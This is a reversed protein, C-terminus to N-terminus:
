AIPACLRSNYYGGQGLKGLALVVSPDDSSSDKMCKVFTEVARLARARKTEVDLDLTPPVYKSAAESNSRTVPSTISRPPSDMSPMEEHTATDRSFDSPAQKMCEALEEDSETMLHGGLTTQKERLRKALIPTRPSIHVAGNSSLLQYLARLTPLLDIPSVMEGTQPHKVKVSEGSLLDFFGETASVGQIVGKGQVNDGDEVFLAAQGLQKGYWCNRGELLTVYLDSLLPGALPYDPEECLLHTIFVMECCANSFYVAMSTACNQTASSIIGAGIAYVNKLGGMVEHMIVDCHDWVVFSPNRLFDALLKRLNDAGCLRSTAYKGQWIESAINPGGLYYLKDGSIGTAERLVGTPTIIHPYPEVMCEVGKALSIIVPWQNVDPEKQRWIQGIREFVGRAETSPLSNIVIDADWVAEELDTVVHLPCLPIKIMNVCFGDRLIEDAYLIRDGVRAEVYKTFSGRHRLQRIVDPYSTITEFLDIAAETPVAKGARRYVSVSVKKRSPDYVGYNKELLAVFVSGWSGAGIGVINLPRTEPINLTVRMSDVRRMAEHEDLANHVAPLELDRKSLEM